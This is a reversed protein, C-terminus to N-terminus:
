GSPYAAKSVREIWLKQDYRMLVGSPDTVDVPDDGAYMYRHLTQPVEVGGIEPDESILRGVRRDM